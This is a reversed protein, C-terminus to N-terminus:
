GGALRLLEPHTPLNGQSGFDDLTSVIGEGFFQQWLRNVAVRATLPNDPSVMWQALGLRNRPLDDSFELVRSPTGPVVPEGPADYAGRELLYTPRPEARDGMVMVEPTETLVINEQQRLQQLTALEQQYEKDVASLYYRLLADEEEPTLTEAKKQVLNAVAEPHGSLKQAELPTLARDFVMLEDLAGNTFGKENDRTGLRLIRNDGFQTVDPIVSQYLHDRRIDTATPQGNFYLQVGQARSSGDYTVTVHLWEDPPVKKKSLLQLANYPFEHSLRFELQGEVLLLEYGKYGGYYGNSFSFVGAYDEVAPSKMWFSLSFPDSRDFSPLELNAGEAGNFLTADGVKGAVEDLDKLQEHSSKGMAFHAVRNKIEPNLLTQPGGNRLWTSFSPMQQEPVQRLRAEQEKIKEQLFALQKETQEDTLLLSPGPAEGGDRPPRGVEDTSNFFAFLQYYDKQSIPDYKHDHCRACETSLGLFAKGLTNTRDAVYEVRFEEEVIGGEVNQVHNRNFGTALIQEQTAGPLLDGAIQWVVFQDYPMNKNFAEMVWDRWPWMHRYQDDQYGHTDSYRAIEMWRAAMQEGYHPSALLRDVVNEYADPADDALFADLEELTPPLGTLDFTLRRILTERDAETAPSLGESQMRAQVFHDIPNGTTQSDSVPPVDPKEPKIFSWHPKYEAGQEIWRTLLAVQEESLSLNAEPPPMVMAPDPNTIRHYLESQHPNGPVIAFQDRSDALAKFADEALDLRLDAERANEDPGHCAFCRDSLIPKIHYNFDINKPLRAEIEESFEISQSSCSSLYLLLTLAATFFPIRKVIMRMPRLYCTKRIRGVWQSLQQRM